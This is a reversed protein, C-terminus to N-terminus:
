FDGILQGDHRNGLNKLVEADINESIFRASGDGLLFQAGGVHDSDFGGCVTVDDVNSPPTAGGFPAQRGLNLGGTNRLTARPGSM